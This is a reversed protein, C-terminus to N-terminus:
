QVKNSPVAAELRRQAAEPNRGTPQCFYTGPSTGALAHSGPQLFVEARACPLPENIEM